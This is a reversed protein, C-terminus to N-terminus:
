SDQVTDTRDRDTGAPAGITEGDGARWSSGYPKKRGDRRKQTVPRKTLVAKDHPRSLARTQEEVRHQLPLTMGPPLLFNFQERRSEREERHLADNQRIKASM